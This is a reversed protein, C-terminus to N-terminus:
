PDLRLGPSRREQLQPWPALSWPTTGGRQLSHPWDPDELRPEGLPGRSGRGEPEMQHLAGDLLGAGEGVTGMDLARARGVAGARVSKRPWGCARQACLPGTWRHGSASCVGRRGRPWVTSVSPLCKQPRACGRETHKRAKCCLVFSLADTAAAGLM